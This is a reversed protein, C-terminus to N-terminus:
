EAPPHNAPASNEGTPVLHIPEGTTPHTLRLEGHADLLAALDAPLTPLTVSSAPAANM